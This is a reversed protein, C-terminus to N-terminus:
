RGRRDTTSTKSKRDGSSGIVLDGSGAVEGGQGGVLIGFPKVLTM